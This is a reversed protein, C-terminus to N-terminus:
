ATRADGEAAEDLEFMPHFVRRLLPETLEDLRRGHVLQDAAHLSLLGHVAGWAIHMISRADGALLGRDIAAQVIDVLHDFAQRRVALLEPHERLAPQRLSFMLRYEEPNRRVYDLVAAHIDRLRRAPSDDLRDNARILEAFRRYCDLRVAAFLAEKGAFYRYPQTHSTGLRRALRRFTVAEYGEARYLELAAECLRQRTRAVERDSLMSRPM